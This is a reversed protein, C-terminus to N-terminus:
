GQKAAAPAAKGSAGTKDSTPAPFAHHSLMPRLKHWLTYGERVDGGAEEWITFARERLRTHANNSFQEMDVEYMM